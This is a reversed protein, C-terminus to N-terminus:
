LSAGSAWPDASNISGLLSSAISPRCKIEGRDLAVWDVAAWYLVAEYPWSTSLSEASGNLQATRNPPEPIVEKEQARGVRVSRGDRLAM